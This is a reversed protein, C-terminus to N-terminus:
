TPPESMPPARNGETINKIFIIVSHLGECLNNLCIHRGDHISAFNTAQLDAIPNCYSIM